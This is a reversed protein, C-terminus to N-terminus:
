AADTNPASSSSKAVSRKRHRWVLKRLYERTVGLGRATAAPDSSPDAAYRAVVADREGKSLAVTSGRLAASIAEEDVRQQWAVRLPSRESALLGARIGFEDDHRLSETLCRAAVTSPCSACLSLPRTLSIGAKTLKAKVEDPEEHPGDGLPVFMETDHGACRAHEAWDKGPVQEAARLLPSWDGQHAAEILSYIDTHM